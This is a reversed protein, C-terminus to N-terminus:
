PIQEEDVRLTEGYKSPDSSWRANNAGLGLQTAGTGRERDHIGPREKDRQHLFIDDTYSASARPMAECRLSDHSFSDHKSACRSALRQAFERKRITDIRTTRTLTSRVDLQAACCKHTGNGACTKLECTCTHKRTPTAAERSPQRLRFELIPLSAPCMYGVLKRAASSRYKVLTNAGAPTGCSSRMRVARGVYENRATKRRRTGTSFQARQELCLGRQEEWSQTERTSQRFEHRRFGETEARTHKEGSNLWEYRQQKKKDGQWWFFEEFYETLLREPTIEREPGLTQGM